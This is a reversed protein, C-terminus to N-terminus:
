LPWLNRSWLPYDGYLLAPGLAGASHSGHKQLCHEEALEANISFDSSYVRRQMLCTNTKEEALSEGGIPM